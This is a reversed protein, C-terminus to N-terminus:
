MVDCMRCSLSVGGKARSGGAAVAKSAVAGPAPRRQLLQQQQQHHCHGGGAKVLGAAAVAAASPRMAGLMRDNQTHTHTLPTPINKHAHTPSGPGHSAFAVVAPGHEHSRLHPCTHPDVAVRSSFLGEDWIPSTEALLYWNLSRDLEFRGHSIRIWM